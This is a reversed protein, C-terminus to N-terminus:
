LRQNQGMGVCIGLFAPPYAWCSLIMWPFLQVSFSGPFLKTVFVLTLPGLSLRQPMKGAEPKSSTTWAANSVPKRSQELGQWQDRSRGRRCQHWGSISWSQIREEGALHDRDWGSRVIEQGWLFLLALRANLPTEWILGINRMLNRAQTRGSARPKNHLLPVPRDTACLYCGQPLAHQHGKQLCFWSLKPSKSLIILSTHHSVCGLSFSSPALLLLSQAHMPNHTANCSLDCLFYQGTGYFAKSTM